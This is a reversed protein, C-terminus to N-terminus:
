RAAPVGRGVTGGETKRAISAPVIEDEKGFAVVGGLMKVVFRRGLKELDADAVPSSRDTAIARAREEQADLEASAGNGDGSLDFTWKGARVRVTGPRTAPESSELKCPAVCFASVLSNTVTKPDPGATRELVPVAAQAFGHRISLEAASRRAASDAAGVDRAHITVGITALLGLILTCKKSM